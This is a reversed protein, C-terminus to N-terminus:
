NNKPSIVPSNNQDQELFYNNTCGFFGHVISNIISYTELPHVAQPIPTHQIKTFPFSRYRRTDGSEHKTDSKLLANEDQLTKNEKLICNYQDHENAIEHIYESLNRNTIFSFVNEQLIKGSKCDLCGDLMVVNSDADNVGIQISKKSTSIKQLNVLFETFQNKFIDVKNAFSTDPDVFSNILEIGYVIYNMLKKRNSEPQCRIYECPNIKIIEEDFSKDKNDLGNDLVICKQENSFQSDGYYTYIVKELLRALQRLRTEM